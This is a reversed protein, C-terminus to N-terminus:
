IHISIYKYVCTHTHTYIHRHTYIVWVCVTHTKCVPVTIVTGFVFVLWFLLLINDLTEQLNNSSSM